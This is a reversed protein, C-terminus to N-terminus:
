KPSRERDNVATDQREAVLGEPSQSARESAEHIVEPGTPLREAELLCRAMRTLVGVLRMDIWSSSSAQAM